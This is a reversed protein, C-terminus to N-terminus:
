DLFQRIPFPSFLPDTCYTGMRVVRCHPASPPPPSLASPLFFPIAKKLIDLTIRQRFYSMDAASFDLQLQPSLYNAFVCTFVGCARGNDQQPTTAMDTPILEWSDVDLLHAVSADGAHKKAQPCLVLCVVQARPSRRVHWPFPARGVEDKFYQQLGSMYHLGEGGMSAASDFYQIQKKAIDAVCLCWHDNSVHCPIVMCRLKFVNGGTAKVNAAWLNVNAYCYPKGGEFM